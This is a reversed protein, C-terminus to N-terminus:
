LVIRYILSKDTDKIKISSFNSFDVFQQLANEIIIENIKDIAYHFRTQNTIIGIALVQNQKDKSFLMDALSRIDTNIDEFKM